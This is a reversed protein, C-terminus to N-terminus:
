SAPRPVVPLERLAHVLTSRRHELRDEPVALRVDPFRALLATLGVDGELRALPAGLCHHLGQGFALHAADREYPDRWSDGAFLPADTATM